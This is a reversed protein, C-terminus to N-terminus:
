VKGGNGKMYLRNVASKEEKETNWVVKGSDKMCDPETVVAASEGDMCLPQVGNAKTDNAM